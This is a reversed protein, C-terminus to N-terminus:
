AARLLDGRLALPDGSRDRRARADDRRDPHLRGARGRPLAAQRVRPREPASEDYYSSEFTVRKDELVKLLGRDAAVCGDRRDRRHLARRRARAHGPRAQARSRGGRRVRAPQRSLDPRPRQGAASQDDRASGLAADDREGRRVARGQRVAHAAASRRSRARPARRDDQRRGAARLPDRAASLALQDQRAARPDRGGTRRRRAADAASAAALASAALTRESLAQLEELKAQSAPTEPGGTERLAELKLDKVYEQHREAMKENVRREISEEAHRQAIVDAMAEEIEASSRASSRARRRASAADSRRLGLRQLGCLRDPLNQSRM